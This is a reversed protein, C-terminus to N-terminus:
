RIVFDSSHLNENIMMAEVTAVRNYLSLALEPQERSMAEIQDRSLSYLVADRSITAKIGRPSQLFFSVMGAIAGPGMAVIRKQEGNAAESSVEIRGSEIVYLWGGPDGNQWLISGPQYQERQLYPKAKNIFESAWTMAAIDLREQPSQEGAVPQGSKESLNLLRDECWQLAGDMDNAWHISAVAECETSNSIGTFRLFQRKATPSLHSLVLVVQHEWALEALRNLWTM